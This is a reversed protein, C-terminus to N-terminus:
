QGRIDSFVKPETKNSNNCNTKKKNNFFFHNKKSNKYFERTLYFTVYM